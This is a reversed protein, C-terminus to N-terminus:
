PTINGAEFDCAFQGAGEIPTTYGAIINDICNIDTAGSNDAIGITGTTNPNLIRNGIITVDTAIGVSIGQNFLAGEIRLITNNRVEILSSNVVGIGGSIGSGPAQFVGSIVNGEVVSDNSSSIRIGIAVGSISIKGTNVVQNNRIINGTGEVQAGAHRNGDLRLDELLHGSSTAADGELFIGRFFGRISGNRITINRRDLAHIGHALTDVGAGLGGLKFGNMDITVNNVTVDIMNGVALSTALNGKLCYIGQVTIIIPISDIVTCEITEAKAPTAMLATALAILPMFRKM